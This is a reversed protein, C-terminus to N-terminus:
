QREAVLRAQFTPCAITGLFLSVVTLQVSSYHLMIISIGFYEIFPSECIAQYKDVDCLLQGFPASM